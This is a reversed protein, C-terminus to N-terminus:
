FYGGPMPFGLLRVAHVPYNDQQLYNGIYGELRNWPDNILYHRPLMGNNVAKVLDFDPIENSVLPYLQRKVARGGLM